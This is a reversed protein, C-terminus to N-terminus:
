KKHVVVVSYNEDKTLISPLFNCGVDLLMTNYVMDKYLAEAKDHPMISILCGGTKLFFSSRLTYYHCPCRGSYTTDKEVSKYYEEDLVPQTIVIDYKNNDGIFDTIFYESIDMFKRVFMEQKEREAFLGKSIIHCYYNNNLATVHLNRQPATKLTNGAGLNTHLMYVTNANTDDFAMSNSLQPHRTKLYAWVFDILKKSVRGDECGCYRSFYNKDYDTFVWNESLADIYQRIEDDLKERDVKM